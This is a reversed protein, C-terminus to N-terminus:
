RSKPLQSLLLKDAEAGSSTLARRGGSAFRAVAGLLARLRDASNDDFQAYAGGSNRAMQEYVKAVHTNYGEQFLFIPQNKLGCQAALRFLTDAHEEMADGIFVLARVPTAATSTDLYHQLLRGIQTPGGLCAVDSM